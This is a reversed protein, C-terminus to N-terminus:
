LDCSVSPGADVSSIGVGLLSLRDSGEDDGVVDEPDCSLCSPFLVDM